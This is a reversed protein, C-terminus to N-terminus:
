VLYEVIVKLLWQASGTYWSWSGRGPFRSDPGEVNAPTVYPESFYIKSNQYPPFITRFIQWAKKKRGAIVEAMVAWCGAHMYCAANERTGPAYRTIYGIEEDAEKYAPYLLLPGASTYLYKDMSQLVKKKREDTVIGSIISWTQVNLYIKGYKNKKSGVPEGNDKTARIYWNGDWGYRNIADRLKKAEEEYKKRKGLRNLMKDWEVLIKYLFMGVWFSEGRGAWGVASLGDNWDGHLMLPIGRSSRRKLALEIAKECHEKISGKGKDFYSVKEKLFKFDKTKKVYEITIYCLWLYIDSFDNEGREETIPNWWHLVRGNLFQKSANIKIREKTLEPNIYLYILSDQLQDRFGINGGMQYYGNRGKIRSSITQYKLWYNVMFNIYRDKTNIKFKNFGKLYFEKTNELEKEVTKKLKFKNVIRKIEKKSEGLGVLFYFEKERYGSLKFDLDATTLPESFELNTEIKSKHSSFVFGKYPFEKNLFQGKENLGPMAVKEIVSINDKKYTRYFLRQLEREEEMYSGLWWNLEFFLNFNKVTKTKNGIKVMWIEVPEDVPVFVLIESEFDESNFLFKTYGLGHICKYNESNKEFPKFTLSYKIGRERDELFFYKGYTDKLINQRWATIRFMRAHKYWSYGSGNQSIIVGYENPCLINVWPYPTKINKIIFEKGDESFDGFKRL